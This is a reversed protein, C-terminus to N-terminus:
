EQGYSYPELGHVKPRCTRGPESLPVALPAGEVTCPELDGFTPGPFM